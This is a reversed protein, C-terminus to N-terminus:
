GSSIFIEKVSAADLLTMKELHISWQLTIEWARSQGERGHCIETLQIFQRNFKIIARIAGHKSRACVYGGGVTSHEVFIRSPSMFNTQLICAQEPLSVTSAM